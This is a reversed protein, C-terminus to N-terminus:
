IKFIWNSRFNNRIEATDSRYCALPNRYLDTRSANGAYCSESRPVAWAHCSKLCLLFFVRVVYFWHKSCMMVTSSAWAINQTSFKRMRKAAYQTHASPVCVAVCHCCVRNADFQIHMAIIQSAFGCPCITRVLEYIATWCFKLLDFGFIIILIISERTWVM